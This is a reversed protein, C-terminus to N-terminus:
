SIAGALLGAPKGQVDFAVSDIVIQGQGSIDADFRDHTVGIAAQVQIDGSAPLTITQAGQYIGAVRPNIYMTSSNQQGRVIVRRAYLRVYADKSAVTPCRMFWAVPATTNIGAASTAWTADSAQWRQLTGDQASGMLTVVQSVESRAQALTSIPFPLDVVAWAKLVLDFCLMRTLLGGSPSGYNVIGGLSGTTAVTPGSLIITTGTMQYQVTYSGNMSPNSGGSYVIVQGTQITLSSQLNLTYQGYYAVGGVVLLRPNLSVVVSQFQATGGLLPIATVYMPPNATQAAQAIAMWSPDAPIIDAVDPDDSAYLYPQIQQSVVRDTVGDFVAYGLHTQRMLGFGPAFQITRPSSSGMDTEARQIAFNSSGFVGVIQYTAYLKFATLSGEPPIGQATITFTALGMGDTGDDKDLFAQNIPNWSKLNNVDCMRLCTPGDLGNATDTVWTNFMWLSGAYVCLHGCGPPSPAATNLQGANQWIVSGDAIQAGTGTPWTPQSGGSTGAQIAKYYYGNSATPTIISNVAYAVSTTWIPYSPVFNSLVPVTMVIMVGGSSPSQGIVSPNFIKVQTISPVSLITFAQSGNANTDYAANAIQGLYVNGGAGNTTSIGHPVTGTITVVGYPDVSISFISIYVAPNIPTGRPDSYVQPAVGNGLALVAQNTFQVIQPILSVMGVIGGSATAGQQGQSGNGGGPQGGMQLVTAPFLAYLYNQAYTIGTPEMAYLATQQTTDTIPTAQPGVVTGGASSEGTSVIGYLGIAACTVSYNSTIATIPWGIAAFNSDSGPTYILVQGVVLLNVISTPFTFTVIYNWTAPPPGPPLHPTASNCVVSTVSITGSVQPVGTDVFGVSLTGPAQQPQPLGIGALLGEGGPATGRYVNYGVANPVTNWQLTVAGGAGVTISVENSPTTEGGNGDIATVKYYYTGAPLMYGGATLATLNRPAGLHQDLAQMLRIYYPAVGIPQYFFECLAKGRGITPVGNFAEIIASGDCTKLAGRKTALLNSARPVSGKPQSLEGTSADVMKTFPGFTVPKIPM